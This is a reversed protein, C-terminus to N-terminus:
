ITAQGLRPGHRGRHRHRPPPVWGSPCDKRPPYRGSTIPHGIGATSFCTRAKMEEVKRSMCASRPWRTLTTKGSNRYRTSCNPNSNKSAFGREPTRAHDSISQLNVVCHTFHRWRRWMWSETRLAMASVGTTGSLLAHRVSIAVSANKNSSVITPNSPRFATKFARYCANVQRGIRGSTRSTPMAAFIAFCFPNSRIKSHARSKYFRSRWNHTQPFPSFRKSNSNDSSALRKGWLIATDM